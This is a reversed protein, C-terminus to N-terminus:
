YSISSIAAGKGKEWTINKGAVKINGEGRVVQYDAGVFKIFKGGPFFLYKYIYKLNLIIRGWNSLRLM